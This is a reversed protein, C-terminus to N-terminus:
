TARLTLSGLTVSASITLLPTRGELAAPTWFAGEKVTFGEGSEIHGLPSETAIRAATTAPVAITV